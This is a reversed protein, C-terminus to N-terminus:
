ISHINGQRWQPSHRCFRCYGLLTSETLWVEAKSTGTMVARQIGRLHMTILVVGGILGGGSVPGATMQRNM